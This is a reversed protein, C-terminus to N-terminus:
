VKVSGPDMRSSRNPRETPRHRHSESSHMAHAHSLRGAHSVRSKIPAWRNMSEFDRRVEEHLALIKGLQVEKDSHNTVTVDPNSLLEHAEQPSKHAWMRVLACRDAASADWRPLETAALLLSYRGVTLM